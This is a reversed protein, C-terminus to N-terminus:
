DDDFVIEFQSTLYSSRIGFIRQCAACFRFLQLFHAVFTALLLDETEPIVTFKLKVHSHHRWSHRGLRNLGMNLCSFPAQLFFLLACPNPTILAFRWSHHGPDNLIVNPLNFSWIPWLPASMSHFKINSNRDRSKGTYLLVFLYHVCLCEPTLVEFIFM